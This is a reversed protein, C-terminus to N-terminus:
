FESKPPKQKFINEQYGAKGSGYFYWNYEIMIVSVTAWRVKFEHFRASHIRQTRSCTIRNNNENLLRLRGRCDFSRVTRCFRCATMKLESYDAIM